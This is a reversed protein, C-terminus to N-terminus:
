RLILMKEYWEGHWPFHEWIAFRLYMLSIKGPHSLIFKIENKINGRIALKRLNYGYVAIWCSSSSAINISSVWECYGCLKVNFDKCTKM